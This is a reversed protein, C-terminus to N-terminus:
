FINAGSMGLEAARVISLVGFGALTAALFKMALLYGRSELAPLFRSALVAMAVKAAILAGIATAVFVASELATGRVIYSGG